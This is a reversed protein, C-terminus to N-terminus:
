KGGQWATPRALGLSLAYGSFLAGSFEFGLWMLMQWTPMGDMLLSMSRGCTFGAMGVFMSLLAADRYRVKLAGLVWLTSIGLFNGGYVGRIMNMANASELPIGYFDFMFHPDIFYLVGLAGWSLAAFWLGFTGTRFTNM